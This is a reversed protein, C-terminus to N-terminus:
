TDMTFAELTWWRRAKLSCIPWALGVMSNMGTFLLLMPCPRRNSGCSRDKKIMSWLALLLRAPFSCIRRTWVQNMMILKWAQPRYLMLSSWEPMKTFPIYELQIESREGSTSYRTRIARTGSWTPCTQPSRQPKWLAQSLNFPPM